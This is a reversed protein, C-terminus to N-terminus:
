GESDLHDQAQKIKRRTPEHAPDIALARELAAVAREYNEIMLWTDGYNHWFWADDPNFKM